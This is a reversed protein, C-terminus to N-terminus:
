SRKSCITQITLMMQHTIEISLYARGIKTPSGEQETYIDLADILSKAVILRPESLREHSAQYVSQCSFSSEEETKELYSSVVECSFYIPCEHAAVWDPEIYSAEAQIIAEKFNKAVVLSKEGLTSVMYSNNILVSNSTM